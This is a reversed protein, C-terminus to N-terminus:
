VFNISPRYKWLANQSRSYGAFTSFDNISRV